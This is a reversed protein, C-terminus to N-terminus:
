QVVDLGDYILSSYLQVISAGAEIKARATEGDHVGGVGILPFQRDVRLWTQALMRTAAAFLPAGSLGGAERALSRDTLHLPRAITTNSVIMGDVARRRAVAVIADLEVLTLDPAIKLLLPTPRRGDAAGDRAEISRALLTDLADASQLDRLGPTNPSSVNITLYDALPAFVAAGLAYDGARDASDKNAGLNVGVIGHRRRAAFRRRLAEHGDSNFGFRNIIARDKALRFLRPRANGPQPLPTVTGIEVHGFGLSLLRNSVVGNKDFGAALGVPNPFALGFASVALVPDDPPAATRPLARLGAIALNHALEPELRMLLPHVMRGLAAAIM